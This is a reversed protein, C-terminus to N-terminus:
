LSRKVKKRYNREAQACEPTCYEQKRNRVFPQGCRECARVRDQCQLILNLVSGIIAAREDGTYYQQFRTRKSKAPSKRHITIAKPPPCHWENDPRESFLASLGAKIDRHIRKLLRDPMTLGSSYATHWRDANHLARLDDGLASREETQMRSLDKKVFDLVWQLRIDPTQGVRDDALRMKRSYEAILRAIKGQGMESKRPTM